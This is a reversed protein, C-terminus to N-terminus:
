QGHDWEINVGVMTPVRDPQITGNAIKWAYHMLYAREPPRYTAAISVAGGASSIAQIFSNVADRFAPALDSTSTGTPFQAVWASGSLERQPVAQQVQAVTAAPSVASQAQANLAGTPVCSQLDASCGHAFPNDFIVRAPNTNGVVGPVILVTM